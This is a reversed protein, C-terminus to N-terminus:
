WMPFSWRLLSPPRRRERASKWSKRNRSVLSLEGKLNIAVARYGDLKIEYVWDPGEPLALATRREVAGSKDGLDIRAATPIPSFDIGSAAVQGGVCIVCGVECVRIPETGYAAAGVDGPCKALGDGTEREAIPLCNGARTTIGAWKMEGAFLAIRFTCRSLLFSDWRSPSSVLPPRLLCRPHCCTWGFLFDQVQCLYLCKLGSRGYYIECIGRRPGVQRLHGSFNQHWLFSTFFASFVGLTACRGSRTSRSSRLKPTELIQKAGASRISDISLFRGRPGAALLALFWIVHHFHDVKGQNEPLGFLYLSLVFACGISKRTLVGLFGLFLFVLNALALTKALGANSLLQYPILQYLSIPSWVEPPLGPLVKFIWYLNRLAWPLAVAGLFM